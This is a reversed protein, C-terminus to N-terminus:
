GEEIYPHPMPTLDLGAMEKLASRLEREETAGSVYFSDLLESVDSQRAPLVAPAYPSPEPAAEVMMLAPPMPSPAAEVIALVPAVPAVPGPNWTVADHLAPDAQESQFIKPEVVVGDLSSQTLWADDVVQPEPTFAVLPAAAVAARHVSPQSVRLETVVDRIRTPAEDADIGTHLAAMATLVDPMCSPEPDVLPQPAAAVAAAAPTAAEVEPEAELEVDVDISLEDCQAEAADVAPVRETLEAEEGPLTQATVLTGLRPTSSGREKARLIVPEPKTFAPEGVALLPEPTLTLEVPPTKPLLRAPPPTPDAVVLPLQVPSPEPFDAAMAIPEAVTVVPAAVPMAAAAVVPKAPAALVPAAVVPAAVVPAAVVEAKLWADLKGADRARTTERHVRSL